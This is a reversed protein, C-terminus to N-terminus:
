IDLTTRCLGLNPGSDLIPENVDLIKAHSSKEWFLGFNDDRISKLTKM